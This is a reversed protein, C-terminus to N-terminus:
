EPYFSGWWKRRRVQVQTRADAPAAVQMGSLNPPAHSSLLVFPHVMKKEKEMWEKELRKDNSDYTQINLTGKDFRYVNRPIYTSGGVARWRGM